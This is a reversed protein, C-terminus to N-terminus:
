KQYRESLASVNEDIEQKAAPADKGLYEMVNKSLVLVDRHKIEFNQSEKTM